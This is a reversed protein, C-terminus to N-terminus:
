DPQLRTLTKIARGAIPYSRTASSYFDNYMGNIANPRSSKAIPVISNIQDATYVWCLCPM